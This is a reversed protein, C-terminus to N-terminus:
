FEEGLVFSNEDLSFPNDQNIHDYYLIGNLHDIEHQLVIAPYGKFRKKHENGELDQYRLTIRAYRPVYGPVDQDVSLCGEGSPLAVKELSHSLIRPNCVVEEMIIKGDPDELDPILVATMQKSVNVQPAALGVGARLGYKEAIEEDQSNHLYDMLDQAFARDEDTLPFTVKEATKRLTPHGDRIIDDMTIM